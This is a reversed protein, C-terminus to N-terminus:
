KTLKVMDLVSLIKSKMWEENCREVSESNSFMKGKKNREMKKM